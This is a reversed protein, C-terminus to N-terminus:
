DLVIEGLREALLLACRLELEDDTLPHGLLEEARKLRYVVTNRHVSRLEAARRLSHGNELYARLTLRQESAAATNTALPGLVQRTFTRAKDPHLGLLALVANERWFTVPGGVQEHGPLSATDLAQQHTERFGSIGPAAAGVAARTGTQASLAKGLRGQLNDDPAEATSVWAWVRNDGAPIVLVEAGEMADRLARGLRRSDLSTAGHVRTLVVGVHFRELDVGLDHRLGASEETPADSLLDTVLDRRRALRSEVLAEREAMYTQLFRGIEDDFVRSASSVLEEALGSSAVVPAHAAFLDSIWHAQTARMSDIVHEFPVKLRAAERAMPPVFQASVSSGPLQALAALLDLALAELSLGIQARPLDPVAAFAGEVANLSRAAEELGWALPGEGLEELLAGIQEPALFADRIVAASPGKPRLALVLPAASAGPKREEM